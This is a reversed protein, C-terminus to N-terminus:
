IKIERLLKAINANYNATEMFILPQNAPINMRLLHLLAVLLPEPLSHLRHTATLLFHPEEPQHLPPEPSANHSEAVGQFSTTTFHPKVEGGM